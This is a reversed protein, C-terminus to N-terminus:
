AATIVASFYATNFKADALRLTLQGLCLIRVLGQNFLDLDVLGLNVSDQTVLDLNVIDLNVSDLNVL